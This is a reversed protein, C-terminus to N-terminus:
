ALLSALVETKEVGAAVVVFVAIELLLLLSDETLKKLL